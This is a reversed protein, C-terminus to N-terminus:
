VHLCEEMLTYGSIGLIERNMLYYATKVVIEDPDTTDKNYLVDNEVIKEVESGDLGVISIHDGSCAVTRFIRNNGKLNGFFVPWATKETLKELYKSLILQVIMHSYEDTGLWCTQKVSIYGNSSSLTFGCHKVNINSTSSLIISRLYANSQAPLTAVISEITLGSRQSIEKILYSRVLVSLIKKVDTYHKKEFLFLRNPHNSKLTERVVKFLEKVSFRWSPVPLSYESMSLWSHCTVVEGVLDRVKNHNTKNLLFKKSGITLAAYYESNNFGSNNSQFSCM